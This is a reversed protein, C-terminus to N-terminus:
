LRERAAEVREFSVAHLPKSAGEAYSVGAARYMSPWVLAGRIGATVIELPQDPVGAAILVRAIDGAPSYRSICEYTKGDHIAEGVWYAPRDPTASGPQPRQYVTITM